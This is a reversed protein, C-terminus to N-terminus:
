LYKKEIVKALKKGDSWAGELEHNDCGNDLLEKCFKQVELSLDGKDEVIIELLEKLEFM